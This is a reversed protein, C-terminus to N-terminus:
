SAAEVLRRAPAANHQNIFALTKPAFVDIHTAALHHADSDIEVFQAQPMRQMWPRLEGSPVRGNNSNYMIVPCTIREIGISADMTGIAEMFGIATSLPTRAMYNIWWDKAHRSFATGARQDMTRRAWHAVGQTEFEQTPAGTKVMTAGVAPCAFMSLSRVRGPHTAALRLAPIGGIKAAVVHVAEISLADLLSIFDAVLEDMSWAHDRPMPTSQGFGRTDPRLTRFERAFYPVWPAWALGSEAFGHIFIVDGAPRRWPDVFDDLQYFMRASPSIVHEAMFGGMVFAIANKRCYSQSTAM